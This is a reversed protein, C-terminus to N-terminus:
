GGGTAKSVAGKAMGVATSAVSKIGGWLKGFFGRKVLHNAQGQGYRLHLPAHPQRAAGPTPVAGLSPSHYSPDYIEEARGYIEEDYAGNGMRKELVSDEPLLARGIAPEGEGSFLARSSLDRSAASVARAVVPTDLIPAARVGAAFFLLAYIITCHLTFKM